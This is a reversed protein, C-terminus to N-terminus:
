WRSEFSAPVPKRRDVQVRIGRLLTPRADVGAAPRWVRGEVGMSSNAGVVGGARAADGAHAFRLDQGASGAGPHFSRRWPLPQPRDQWHNSVAAALQKPRGHFGGAEAAAIVEGNAFRDWGREIAEVVV